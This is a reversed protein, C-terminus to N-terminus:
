IVLEFLGFSEGEDNVGGIVYEIVAMPNNPQPPLLTMGTAGAGTEFVLLVGTMVVGIASALM